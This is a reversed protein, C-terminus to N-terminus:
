CRMSLLQRRYVYPYEYTKFTRGMHTFYLENQYQYGTYYEPCSIVRYGNSSSEIQCFKEYIAKDTMGRQYLSAQNYWESFSEPTRSRRVTLKTGKVDVEYGKGCGARFEDVAVWYKDRPQSCSRTNRPVPSVRLDPYPLDVVVSDQDCGVWNVDCWNPGVFITGALDDARIVVLQGNEIKTTFQAKGSWSPSHNIPIASVQHKTPDFWAPLPVTKTSSISPGVHITRFPLGAHHRQQTVFTSFTVQGVGINSEMVLSPQIRDLHGHYWWDASTAKVPPGMSFDSLKFLVEAGNPNLFVVAKSLSECIDIDDKLLSNGLTDTVKLQCNKFTPPVVM